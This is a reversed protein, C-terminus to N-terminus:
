DTAFDNLRRALGACEARSQRLDANALKVASKLGADIKWVSRQTDSYALFVKHEASYALAAFGVDKDADVALAVPHLTVAFTETDVRWLMPVVNSTVVVEGNPGVALTPPCHPEDAWIWGPLAIARRPAAASHLEVGDRTLWWSRHRAPDVQHTLMAPTNTVERRECSAMGAIAAAMLISAIATRM